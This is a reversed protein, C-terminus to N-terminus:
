RLGRLGFWATLVAILAALSYWQLAYGRHKDVGLSPQPRDRRLGDPLESTQQVVFRAVRRGLVREFDDFELNQWIGPIRREPESGLELLRPMGAVALGEIVVDAEPAPAAPLRARELPDRAAWGRDVPVLPLASGISIAAIVNFGAVGQRMRNDLYVTAAPVLSGRLQVRRPLTREVQDIAAQSDLQVPAGRQAADWEAQLAQKADGRRMQWNGLSVTLAIGAAAATLALFRRGRM